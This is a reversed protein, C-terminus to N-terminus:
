PILRESKRFSREWNKRYEKPSEETELIFPVGDGGTEKRKGRCVNRSYEPYPRPAQPIQGRMEM